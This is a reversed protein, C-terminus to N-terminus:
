KKGFVIRVPPTTCQRNRFLPICVLKGLASARCEEGPFTWQGVRLHDGVRLGARIISCGLQHYPIYQEGEIELGIVALHYTQIRLMPEKYPALPHLHRSSHDVLLRLRSGWSLRPLVATKCSRHATSRSSFSTTSITFYVSSVAM